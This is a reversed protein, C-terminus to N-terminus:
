NNRPLAARMIKEESAEARNFEATQRGECLVLIRDAVALIEPLESSVVIIALGAQTLEEMLGYIERKANIDIGRTPEDLLLVQPGTALWKALVVKQQNGGSLNRVPQRVSPTKIRLRDVLKGVLASEAGADLLGWREAQRLCALSGNETVSMSLVLGERKRDEPALGIGAAIADGPSQFSTKRGAVFVDGSSHKSHLGFLTELLETRGAGLLGFIGLVEGRRVSFSVEDVLRDNTREPNRLVLRHARLAEEKPAAPARRYLQSLDRGVMMRVFDDTKFESAPGGGVLQGDRLVAIDDALRPLEDLKHTIYILGVGQRKLDAILRFLQEVEQETLASTPEDMIFIRARCSLAKAIEVVQQQGVRLRGVPVRPDVRLELQSLLDAARRNMQAADILGARNLPERGLFINEAVSLSPVLNLEQFITAIGAAQAARPSAFTIEQGELIVQGADPLFVGSLINMLTSKGAGNEGLLANLRGRRVRLNVNDLARVGPFSKTIGRAELLVQSSHPDTSM